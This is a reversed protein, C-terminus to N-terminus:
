PPIAALEQGRSGAGNAPARQCSLEAVMEAPPFSGAQRTGSGQFADRPPLTAPFRAGPSIAASPILDQPFDSSTQANASGARDTQRPTRAAAM